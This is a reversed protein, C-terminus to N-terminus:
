QRPFLHQFLEFPTFLKPHGFSEGPLTRLVHLGRNAIYAFNDRVKMAGRSRYMQNLVELERQLLQQPDIHLIEDQWSTAAPKVPRSPLGLLTKELKALEKLAPDIARENRDKVPQLLIPRRNCNAEHIAPDHVV